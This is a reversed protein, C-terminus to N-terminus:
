VSKNVEQQASGKANQAKGSAEQTSDGTVSGVVQDVQEYRQTTLTSAFLPLIVHSM